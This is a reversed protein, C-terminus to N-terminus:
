KNKHHNLSKENDTGTHPIIWVGGSFERSFHSELKSGVIDGAQSALACGLIYAVPSVVIDWNFCQSLWSFM